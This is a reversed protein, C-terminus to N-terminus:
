RQQRGKRRNLSNAKTVAQTFFSRAVLGISDVGGNEIIIAYVTIDGSNTIGIV